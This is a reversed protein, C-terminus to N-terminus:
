WRQIWNMLCLQRMLWIASIIQVDQAKVLFPVLWLIMLVFRKM